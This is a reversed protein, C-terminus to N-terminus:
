DKNLNVQLRYLGSDLYQTIGGCYYSCDTPMNDVMEALEGPTRGTLVVVGKALLETVYPPQTDVPLGGVVTVKKNIKKSM